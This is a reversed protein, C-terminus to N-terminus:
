LMIVILFYRYAPIHLLYPIFRTVRYIDEYKLARSTVDGTVNDRDGHESNVEALLTNEHDDGLGM